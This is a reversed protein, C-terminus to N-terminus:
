RSGLLQGHGGGVDVLTRVGSFDYADRVAHSRESVIGTMAANFIRV